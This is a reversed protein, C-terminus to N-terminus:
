RFYRSCTKLVRRFDILRKSELDLAQRSFVRSDARLDQFFGVAAVEPVEGGEEEPQPGSFRKQM